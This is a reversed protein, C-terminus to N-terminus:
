PTFPNIATMGFRTLDNVNETYVESVGNELATAALFADFIDAGTVSTALILQVLRDLASATPYLKVIRRSRLYLRLSRSAAPTALPQNVRRPNTIVNYFEMLNQPTLCLDQKGTLGDRLLQRAAARQPAASDHAYVLVNSDVLRM